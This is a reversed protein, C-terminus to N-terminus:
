APSRPACRASYAALLREVEAAAPLRRAYAARQGHLVLEGFYQATAAEAQARV